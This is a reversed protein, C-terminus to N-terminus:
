HATEHAFECEPTPVAPNLGCAGRPLKRLEECEARHRTAQDAGLDIASMSRVLEGMKAM